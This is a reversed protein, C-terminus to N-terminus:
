NSSQMQEADPRVIEILEFVQMGAIAGGLAKYRIAIVEFMM